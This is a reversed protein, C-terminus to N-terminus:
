VWGICGDVVVDERCTGEGTWCHVETPKGRHYRIAKANSITHVIVPYSAVDGAVWTAVRM